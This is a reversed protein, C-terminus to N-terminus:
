SLGGELPAPSAATKVEVRAGPRLRMQGDTVVNENVKLGARVPLEDEDIWGEVARM